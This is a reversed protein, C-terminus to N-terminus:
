GKTETKASRWVVWTVAQVQAPAIGLDDAAQRYAEAVYEYMGKRELVKRSTDDGVTGMAIDFAHRDVTVDTSWLPSCINAYFARVKNGGLVVEPSEGAMIRRVKALTGHMIPATGESLIRECYAVNLTWSLRPSIVALVGAAQEFSVGYKHSWGECLTNAVEYWEMGAVRQQESATRYVSKINQVMMFQDILM